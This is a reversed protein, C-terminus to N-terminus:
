EVLYIVMIDYRGQVLLKLFLVKYRNDATEGNSKIVSVSYETADTIPNKGKNDDEGVDLNVSGSVALGFLPGDILLNYMKEDLQITAPWEKVTPPPKFFMGLFEFLIKNIVVVSEAIQVSKMCEFSTTKTEERDLVSFVKRITDLEHLEQLSQLCRLVAAEPKTLNSLIASIILLKAALVKDEEYSENSFAESAEKFVMESTTISQKMKIDDDAQLSWMELWSVASRVYSICKRVYPSTSYCRKIITCKYRIEDCCRSLSLTSEQEWYNYVDISVLNCVIHLSQVVSFLSLIYLSFYLFDIISNHAHLYRM